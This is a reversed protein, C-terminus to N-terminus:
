LTSFEGDNVRVRFREPEEMSGAELSSQSRRRKGAATRFLDGDQSPQGGWGEVTERVPEAANGM